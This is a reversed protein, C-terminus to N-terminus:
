PKMMAYYILQLLVMMTLDSIGTPMSENIYVGLASIIPYMYTNRSFYTGKLILVSSVLEGAASGLGAMIARSLGNGGYNLALSAGAVNFGIEIFPSVAGYSM